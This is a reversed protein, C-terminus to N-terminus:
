MSRRRPKPRSFATAQRIRSSRRSIDPKEIKTNDKDLFNSLLQVSPFRFLDVSSLRGEFKVKLIEYVQLLSMSDGGVEFFQSDIPFRIDGLVEKWALLVVRETDSLSQEVQEKSSEIIPLKISPLQNRAIKGSSTLPFETLQQYAVPVMYKPLYEQLFGKLKEIDISISTNELQYFAALYLSGSQSKEVVVAATLINSFRQTVTEIEALEIRLGNFKIQSDIRGLFELQGNTRWRALDGTKYIVGSGFPNQIFQQETLDPRGIYGAAVQVGGILLEGTMGIPLQNMYEDVVYLMTNSIPAGIPIITNTQSIECDFKSVAVAAETPGYLNILRIGKFKDVFESVSDALLEEGCCAVIRLTCEEAHYNNTLATLVSPVIQLISVNYQQIQECIQLMNKHSDHEAIALTVGSTPAWFIEFLSVDFSYPTKQLVVDENTPEFDESMWHMVNAIGSHNNMVGKPKGTSGSTFFVYALDDGLIETSPNESCQNSLETELNDTLYIPYHDITFRPLSRNNSIIVKSNSQKLIYYIREKPLDVDIPVYAIGLKVLAFIDVMMDISREIIVAVIDGKSLGEGSLYHALRNARNNFARFSLEVDNHILAIKNPQKEVQEEFLTKINQRPSYPNLTNNFQNMLSLDTESVISSSFINADQDDIISNLLTKFSSVFRKSFERGVKQGQYEIGGHIADDQEWLRLFLEMQADKLQLNKPTSKLGIEDLRMPHEYAFGHNYIARNTSNKTAESIIEVSPCEQNRHAGLLEYRIAKLVDKYVADSSIEIKIPVTNVFCGPTDKFKNNRRNSLPIAICFNTEGLYKSLLIYYCSLLLIYPKLTNKNCFNLVSQWLIDDINLLEIGAFTNEQSSLMVPQDIQSVQYDTLKNKWYQKQKIGKPSNLFSNQEVIYEDYNSVLVAPTELPEKYYFTVLKSFIEKTALDIVIHPISIAILNSKVDPFKAIILRIFSDKDLEFIDFCKKSLWENAVELDDGEFTKQCLQCQNEKKVKKVDGDILKFGIGLIGTQQAAKNIATYLRDIDISQSQFVSNVNYSVANEQQNLLWFQKEILSIPTIVESPTM